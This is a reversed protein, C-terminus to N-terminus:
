LAEDFSGKQEDEQAPFSGEEEGDLEKELVKQELVELASKWTRAPASSRPSLTERLIFSYASLVAKEISRGLVHRKLLRRARSAMLPWTLRVFLSFITGDCTKRYAGLVVNLITEPDRHAARLRKAEEHLGHHDLLDLIKRMLGGRDM